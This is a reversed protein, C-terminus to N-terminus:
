TAASCPAPYRYDHARGPDGGVSTAMERAALPPVRGGLNRKARRKVLCPEPKAHLDPEGLAARRVEHKRPMPEGDEYITAEPVPAWCM